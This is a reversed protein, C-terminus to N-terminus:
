VQAMCEYFLRFGTIQVTRGVDFGVSRHHHHHHHHDEGLVPVFFTLHSIENDDRSYLYKFYPGQANRDSGRGVEEGWRVRQGGCPVVVTSMCERMELRRRQDWGMGPGDYFVCM